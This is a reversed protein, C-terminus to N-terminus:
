EEGGTVRLAECAFESILDPEAFSVGPVDGDAIQHLADRLREREARLREIERDADCADEMLREAEEGGRRLAGRLLEIEAEVLRQYQQVSRLAGMLGDATERLRVIEAFSESAERPPSESCGAELGARLAVAARARWYSRRGEPMEGWEEERVIPDPTRLSCLAMAAAEVMAPTPEVGSM